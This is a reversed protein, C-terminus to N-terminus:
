LGPPHRQEFGALYSASFASEPIWGPGGGPNTTSTGWYRMASPTVHPNFELFTHADRGYAKVRITVLSGPGAQGWHILGATTMTELDYGAVQLLRSVSSSCDFPGDPPAPTQGHSGGYLYTLHLADIRVAEALLRPLAQGKAKSVLCGIASSAVGDALAGALGGALGGTLAGVVGKAKGGASFERAHGLVKEVYDDSHNYAFIAGKWDDPAGSARLYRAAAHIADEPDDPDRKGDGNADVGYTEWTSPLFQMWGVAGASSPGLNSGWTTETFNIAALVAAGGAGLEYEGAAREFIPVLEPPVDRLSGSQTRKCGVGDVTGGVALVVAVTGGGVVAVITAAIALAGLLLVRGRRKRM